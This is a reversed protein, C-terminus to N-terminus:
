RGGNCNKANCNKGRNKKMIDKMDLMTRLDKKQSSNLVKYVKEIMDAKREIKADRNQKALKIFEKKDFSTESFAKSPNPMNQKSEKVISVVDARQKDTLDLKMVMGVFMHSGKHKNNNQKMKCSKENGHHKGKHGDYAMASTALLLATTLGLIIKKNM